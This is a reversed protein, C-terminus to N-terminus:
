EGVILWYHPAAQTGPELQLRVDLDDPFCAGTGLCHPQRLRELWVHHEHIDLHWVQIADLGCCGQPTEDRLAGHHDQADMVVGPCSCARLGSSRDCEHLLTSAGIIKERGNAMRGLM